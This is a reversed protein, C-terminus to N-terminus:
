TKRKPGKCKNSHSAHFFAPDPKAIPISINSKQRWEIENPKPLPVEIVLSNTQANEILLFSNLTFIFFISIHQKLLSLIKM